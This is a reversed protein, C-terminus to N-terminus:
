VTLVMVVYALVTLALFLLGSVWSGIAFMLAIGSFYVVTYVILRVKEKKSM